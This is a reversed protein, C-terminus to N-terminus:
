WTFQGGFIMFTGRRTSNDFADPLDNELMLV